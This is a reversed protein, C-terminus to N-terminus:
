MPTFWQIWILVHTLECHSFCYHRRGVRRSFYGFILQFLRGNLQIVLSYDKPVYSRGWILCISCEQLFEVM